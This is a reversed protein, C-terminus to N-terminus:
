EEGASGGRLLDSPEPPCAVNAADGINPPSCNHACHSRHFLAATPMMLSPNGAEILPGATHITLKWGDSGWNTRVTCRVPAGSNSVKDGPGGRLNVLAPACTLAFVTEITATLPVLATEEGGATPGPLVLVAALGWVWPTSRM